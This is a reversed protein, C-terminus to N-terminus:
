AADRVFRKEEDLIERLQKASMELLRARRARQEDPSRRQFSDRNCIEEILERATATPDIESM